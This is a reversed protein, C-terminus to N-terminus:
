DCWDELITKLVTYDGFLDDEDIDFDEDIPFEEPDIGEEELEKYFMEKDDYYLDLWYHADEWIGYGKGKIYRMDELDFMFDNKKIQKLTLVIEFNDGFDYCVTMKSNKKLDLDILEYDELYLIEDEDYFDDEFRSCHYDQRKHTLSYLHYGSAKFAALVTVCLDDLSLMAPVEIERYVNKEQDRLQCKFVYSSTTLPLNSIFNGLKECIYKEMYEEPLGVLIIEPLCVRVMDRISQIYSEENLEEKIKTLLEQINSSETNIIEDFCEELCQDIKERLM